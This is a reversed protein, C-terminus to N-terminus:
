LNMQQREQQKPIESRRQQLNSCSSSRTRSNSRCSSGSSSSREYIWVRAMSWWEHHKRASSSCLCGCRDSQSTPLRYPMPNKETAVWCQSSAKDPSFLRDTLLHKLLNPPLTQVAPFPIGYIRSVILHMVCVRVHTCLTKPKLPERSTALPQLHVSRCAFCM